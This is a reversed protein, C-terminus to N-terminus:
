QSAGPTLPLDPTQPVSLPVNGAPGRGQVPEGASERPLVCREGSRRGLASMPTGVRCGRSTDPPCGNSAPRTVAPAPRWGLSHLVAAHRYSLDAAGLTQLPGRFLLNKAFSKVGGGCKRLPRTRGGRMKTATEYAQGTEQYRN